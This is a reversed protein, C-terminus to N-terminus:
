SITGWGMPLSKMEARDRHAVQFTHSNRDRGWVAPLECRAEAPGVGQSLSWFVRLRAFRRLTRSAAAGDPTRSPRTKAPTFIRLLLAMACSSDAPNEVEIPAVGVNSLVWPEDSREFVEM